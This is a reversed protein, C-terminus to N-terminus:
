TFKTISVFLGPGAVPQHPFLLVTRHKAQIVEPTLEYVMKINHKFM